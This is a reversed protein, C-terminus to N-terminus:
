VLCGVGRAFNLKTTKKNPRDMKHNYRFFNYAKKNSSSVFFDDISLGPRLNYNFYSQEM